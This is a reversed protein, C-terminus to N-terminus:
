GLKQITPEVFLICLNQLTERAEGHRASFFYSLVKSAPYLQVQTFHLCYCFGAICSRLNIAREFENRKPLGPNHLCSKLWIFCFFISHLDIIWILYADVASFKRETAILWCALISSRWKTRYKTVFHHIKTYRQIMRNIPRPGDHSFTGLFAIEHCTGGPSYNGTTWYMYLWMSAWNGFCSGLWFVHWYRSFPSWRTDEILNYQCCSFTFIQIWNRVVFIVQMM